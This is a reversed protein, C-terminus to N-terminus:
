LVAGHCHKFKKGSGCPCPANRPTQAWDPNLAFAASAAAVASGATAIEPAALGLAPDQRTEHMEQQMAAQQQQADVDEPRTVRLEVQALVQTVNERLAGLMEEFLNFAEAQYERLPDRQAYARLNIGQRLHDLTLLHDKWSQDLIQLLLSKEAMHMIEPGYAEVKAAMKADIAHQIREEIERNAIGEEKAWEKVPLDMGFLRLSEEHLADLNWKEAYSNEPIARAVVAAVVEQRMDGVMAGVDPAQMIERRQEYIV